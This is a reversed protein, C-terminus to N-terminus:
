ATPATYEKCLEVIYGASCETEAKLKARIENNYKLIPEQSSQSTLLEKIRAKASAFSPQSAPTISKVEFVYYTSTMKVPGSLAGTKASCIAEIITSTQAGKAGSSRQCAVTTPTAKTAHKAAAAMLGGSSHEKAIAEAISQTKTSVFVISRRETQGYIQKHENFYKELESQSVPRSKAFKERVKTYIRTELLESKVEEALDATGRAEALGLEPYRSSKAIEKQRAERTKVQTAVESDSVTVGLEKAEAENQLRRILSSIAQQKFAKYQLECQQKLQADTRAKRSGALPGPTKARGKSQKAIREQNARILKETKAERSKVAAICGSYDSSNVILSKITVPASVQLQHDYAVTTIATGDVKAVIGSSLHAPKGIKPLQAGASRGLRAKAAASASPQGAQAAPTGAATSSSSGGSSGGGCGVLAVAGLACLMALYIRM